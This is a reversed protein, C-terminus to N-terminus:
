CSVSHQIETMKKVIGYVKRIQETSNVVKTKRLTQCIPKTMDDCLGCRALLSTNENTYFKAFNHYLCKSLYKKKESSDTYRALTNCAM